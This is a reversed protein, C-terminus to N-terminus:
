RFHLPTTERYRGISAASTSSHFDLVELLLADVSRYMYEFSVYGRMAADGRFTNVGNGM